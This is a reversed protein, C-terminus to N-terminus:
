IEKIDSSSLESIFWGNKASEVSEITIEYTKGQHSFRYKCEANVISPLKWKLSYNLDILEIKNWNINLKTGKAILRKFSKKSKSISKNVFNDWQNNIIYTFDDRTKKDKIKTEVLELAIPKTIILANFEDVNCSQFASHLKTKFEELNKAEEETLKPPEIKQFRIRDIVSKVALEANDCDSICFNKITYKISNNVMVFKTAKGSTNSAKVIYFTGNVGDLKIEEEKVIEANQNIKQALKLDIEALEKTTKNTEYPQLFITVLNGVMKIKIYPLAEEIQWGLDNCITLGLYDGEFKKDCNQATLTIAFLCVSIFLGIKKM